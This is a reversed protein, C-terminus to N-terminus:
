QSAEEIVATIDKDLLLRYEKGDKGEIVVGAFKAFMVADGEKPKTGEPYHANDFAVPSVSVLRGEIQSLRDRDSINDPIIIGGPTIRDQGPLAVLVNFNTAKIGPACDQMKPIM